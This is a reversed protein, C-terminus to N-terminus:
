FQGLQQAREFAAKMAEDVISDLHYRAFVELAAATTGGTSTVTKRLEHLTLSSQTASTIAGVFTQLAFSTAIKEEVGLGVAAKIMAEMFLFIYAPGSGSLATFADIDSEKCAWTILGLNAFIEEARQKQEQTVFDNAIMPTAGKGLATAINPMARVISIHPLHKGFWSLSLGSAVSIILCNKPLAHTNIQELVSNMISPKVALIIIDAGAIADVNNSYTNIGTKDIGNPLSPASARIKHVKNLQLGTIIANAINGYGIFSINM